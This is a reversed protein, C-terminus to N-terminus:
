QRARLELLRERQRPTLLESSMDSDLLGGRLVFHLGADLLRGYGASDVAAPELYEEIFRAGGLSSWVGYAYSSSDLAGDALRDAFVQHDVGTAAAVAPRVVNPEFQIDPSVVLPGRYVLLGFDWMARVAADM